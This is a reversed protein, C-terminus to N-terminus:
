ARGRQRDGVRFARRVPHRPGHVVVGVLGAAVHVQEVRRRVRDVRDESLEDVDDARVLNRDGRVLHPDRRPQPAVARDREPRLGDVRELHRVRVRRKGRAADM